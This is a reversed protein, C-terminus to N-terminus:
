NTSYGDPVRAEDEAQAAEYKGYRVFGDEYFFTVAKTENRIEERVDRINIKVGSYVAGSASVTGIVKLERLHDQLEQIEQSMTDVETHIEGKRTMLTNLNEEKEAPLTKRIKKQQELTQIDLELENLEKILVAQKDTLEDLRRKAKPDYGVSLITESAGASSGITKARIEETAFTHGGIISARKGQVLIKKNSTVNSNIIGDRVVIYEEAEVTANQIFKAWMSGGAKIFGQDKGMVGLSVVIDGEAELVANEVTGYVEINGSAKVQFGDEVNGKIIVTGLFTINGTKINVGDVEMIPEVNIKDNVLLVQGNMTARITRGDADVSVNKGVPLAIDKGNKAELYRGSLTRGAKGREPLVKHALTQGEVVNQILNLEKFDVQGSDSEKMHLNTKDTEFNYSIYADRGDVPEVGEAVVYAVGYVPNDVYENIKDMNLDNVIGQNKLMQIIRAASIDAGGIAPATATISAKMDDSSVEVFFTADGAQNHTYQGIPEYESNTTKKVYEKILNEDISVTDSRKLSDMIVKYEVPVGSGVPAVVKIHIESGFRHIYFAGDVNKPTNDDDFDNDSLIGDGIQQKSKKTHLPNEYVRLLWPKKMLTMFGKYGQEMVEYELIPVRSDLQIAADTLAEEISDARVDVYKIKRDIEFQSEMDSRLKELTVM